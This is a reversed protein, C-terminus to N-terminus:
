CSVRNNERESAELERRLSEIDTSGERRETVVGLEDYGAASSGLRNHGRTTTGRRTTMVPINFRALRFTCTELSPSLGCSILEHQKAVLCRYGVKLWGNM